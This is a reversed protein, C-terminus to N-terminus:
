EINLKISVSVPRASGLASQKGDPCTLGWDIFSSNVAQCIESPVEGGLAEVLLQGMADLNGASLERKNVVQAM